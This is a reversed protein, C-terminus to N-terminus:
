LTTAYGLTFKITKHIETIKMFDMTLRSLITGRFLSAEVFPSLQFSLNHPTIKNFNALSADHASVTLHGGVTFNFIGAHINEAFIALNCGLTNSIFFLDAITDEPFNFLAFHFNMFNARFRPEMLFYIDSLNLPKEGEQTNLIVKTIGAQLYLTATHKSGILLSTGAHFQIRQNLTMSSEGSAESSSIPFGFGFSFDISLAPFIGSYRLDTNIRKQKEIENMYVHAGFAHPTKLRLTYALGLGSFPYIVSDRVGLWTESIRSSIPQIGFHRQLFIDSGISEMEGAFLSIYRTAHNCPFRLTASLEDLSFFAPVDQFVNGTILDSTHITAGARLQLTGFLDLQGAFVGDITIHPKDSDQSSKINGATGAFGSFHTQAFAGISFFIAIIAIYAIKFVLSKNINM